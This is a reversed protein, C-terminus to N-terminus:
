NRSTDRLWSCPIVSSIASRSWCIWFTRKSLLGRIHSSHWMPFNICITLCTLQNIISHNRESHISYKIEMKRNKHKKKTVDVFKMNELWNFHLQSEYGLQKRGFLKRPESIFYISTFVSWVHRSEIESSSCSAALVDCLKRSLPLYMIMIIGIYMIAKKKSNQAAKEGSSRSSHITNCHKEMNLTRNQRNQIVTVSVKTCQVSYTITNRAQKVITGITITVIVIKYM